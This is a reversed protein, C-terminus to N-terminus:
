RLRAGMHIAHSAHSAADPALRLSAPRPAVAHQGKLGELRREEEV